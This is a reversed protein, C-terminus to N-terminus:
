GVVPRLVDIVREVEDATNYLHPSIRIAGERLVCVVGAQQLANWSAEPDPTRFCTIASRRRPHPDGVLEVRPHEAAWQVLPQLVSELHAQIRGVGVQELLLLSEALGAFDQFAATAVEFKRAEESFEYRYDLLSSYDECARMATWGVVRPELARHLERRIYAFGTGFPGCLWKQGGTTLVDPRAEAVDIPLQGLAQIADVVFFIGRERCFSGLAALDARYGTSFQVASVAFASVDGRDLREMIRDEDPLGGDCTPVRELRVGDRELGMWPYVNAPFERDSVVVTSGRELPLCHAAINIGFSTNSGLAIEDASAGIM